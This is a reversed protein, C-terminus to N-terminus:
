QIGTRIRGRILMNQQRLIAYTFVVTATLGILNATIGPWPSFGTATLTLSVINLEAGIYLLLGNLIGSSVLGLPLFYIPMQEFRFSGVFYGVTLGPVAFACLTSILRLNGALFTLGGHDFAFLTAYTAGYGLSFALGLIPGDVRRYFTAAEWGILRIAAYILYSHFSGLVLINVLFRNTGTTQALWEGLGLVGVLIPHAVAGSFLAGILIMVPVTLYISLKDSESFRGRSLTFIWVLVPSICVIVGTALRITTSVQLSGSIIASALSIVILVVLTVGFLLNARWFAPSDDTFLTLHDDCYFREHYEHLSESSEGCVICTPHFTAM